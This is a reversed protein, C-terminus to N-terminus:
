SHKRHCDTAPSGMQMEKTITSVQVSPGVLPIPGRMSLLTNKPLIHPPKTVAWNYREQLRRMNTWTKTRWPIGMRRAHDWLLPEKECKKAVALLVVEFAVISTLTAEMQEFSPVSMEIFDLARRGWELEDIVSKGSAFLDKPSNTNGLSLAPPM